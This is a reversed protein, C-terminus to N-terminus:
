LEWNGIIKNFMLAWSRSRPRRFKRRSGSLRGRTTVIDWFCPMPFGHDYTNSPLGARWLQPVHFVDPSAIGHHAKAAHLDVIALYCDEGPTYCGISGDLTSSWSNFESQVTRDGRLHKRVMDGLVAENMNYISNHMANPVTIAAQPKIGLRTSM